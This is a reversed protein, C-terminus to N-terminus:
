HVTAQEDALERMAQRIPEAQEFAERLERSLRAIRADLDQEDFETM